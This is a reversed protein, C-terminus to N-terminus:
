HSKVKAEIQGIQHEHRHHRKMCDDDHHEMDMENNTFRQEGDALRAKIANVDVRTATQELQIQSISAATNVCHSEIREWRKESEKEAAAELKALKEELQRERETM